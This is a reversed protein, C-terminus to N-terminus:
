KTAREYWERTQIFADEYGMKHARKLHDRAGLFTRFTGSTYRYYGDTCIYEKVDGFDHFQSRNLQTFSASVQVTFWYPKTGLNEDEGQVHKLGSPIYPGPLSTLIPLQGTIRVLVQRNIYRGLPEDAGDPYRNRAVPFGEGKGEISIREKNVGRMELYQAVQDARQLSLLMNYEDSGTADAHGTVLVRTEPNADLLESIREVELRAAM